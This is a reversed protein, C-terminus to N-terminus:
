AHKRTRGAALLVALLATFLLNLSGASNSSSRTTSARTTLAPQLDSASDANTDTIAISEIVITNDPNIEGSVEELPISSFAGGRNSTSVEAITDMIIMGAATVQGFVTFGGNQNDLNASNDNLNIFWQSTASNPNGGLKAMAITGRVNSYIPENIVAAEETVEELADEDNFYYGGGQSIFGPISRHIISNDYANSNIYSLFNNVTKPTTEDFLNVEINGYSTQLQVITANSLSSYGTLLSIFFSAILTLPSRTSRTNSM